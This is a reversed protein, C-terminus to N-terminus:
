VKVFCFIAIIADSKSATASKAYSPIRTLLIPSLYFLPEPNKGSDNNSKWQHKRKTCDKWSKPYPRWKEDEWPDPLHCLRRSPRVFQMTEPDVNQKKERFSQPHRICNGHKRKGTRPVPERRFEPLNKDDKSLNKFVLPMYRVNGDEKEALEKIRAYDCRPDIIRHNEDIFMYQRLVVHEKKCPMGNTWIIEDWVRVDEGTMNIDNLYRSKFPHLFKLDFNQRVERALFLLLNDYDQFAYLWRENICDYMYCRFSTEFNYLLVLEEGYKERSIITHLKGITLRIKQM